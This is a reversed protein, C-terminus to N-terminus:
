SHSFNKQSIKRRTLGCVEEVLGGDILKLFGKKLNHFGTENEM